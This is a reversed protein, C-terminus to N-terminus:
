TAKKNYFLLGFSQKNQHTLVLIAISRVPISVVVGAFLHSHM